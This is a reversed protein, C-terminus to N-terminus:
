GFIKALGEQCKIHHEICHHPFSGGWQLTGDRYNDCHFGRWEINCNNKNVKTVVYWARGDAVPVSFLKNKVLGEGVKDSKKVAKKYEDNIYRDFETDISMHTEEDYEEWGYPQKEYGIEALFLLLRDGTVPETVIIQDKKAYAKAEESYCDVDGFLVQDEHGNIWYKIRGLDLVGGKTKIDSM